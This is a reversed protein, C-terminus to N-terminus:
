SDFPSVIPQGGVREYAAAEDPRLGFMDDMSVQRIGDVPIYTGACQLCAQAEPPLHVDCMFRDCSACKKRTKTGCPHSIVRGILMGCRQM